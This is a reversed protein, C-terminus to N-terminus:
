GYYHKGNSLHTGSFVVFDKLIESKFEISKDVAIPLKIITEVKKTKINLAKVEGKTDGFVLLDGNLVPSFNSSIISKKYIDKIDFDWVKVISSKALSYSSILCLIVLSTFLIKIQKKTM